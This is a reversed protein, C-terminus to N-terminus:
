ARNNKAINHTAWNVSTKWSNSLAEDFKSRFHKLAEDDSMKLVLTDRLYNLDKESSLEPLGTSIMMAFLSIFLNGHKRLVMFAKECCEQFIKFELSKTNQGKNIVYVFDHTLVFPVRERKFGFKEKFHGLIHGFDVHFVQGNQKVMINDSHRDAIGLVYTAVCYGACSLTFETVAKNLANESPNHDKLWALIPGKRFAATATFMGKEKQINAITEANLVVEIMGVRNELSICGYPNMRLDLNEKKWLKDMLKIMQLTLMDQRLDDGNKFIIYVDEGYADSNEFVIWLPRMKSDMVRCKELKIRTCRYMPNLPSRTNNIAMEAISESLYEKLAAKAKEKDKSQRVLESCIKLKDLCELQKQLIVIHEQTGRCYAELILGFRVSVAPVSMESRLHWFLYHGIQQNSLARRLLFNVLDCDLYLEHKLAQVLQLLYLLIEEDSVDYLCEVAFKRLEQDAYAYDLLELAKEVSLKPWVKLMAFVESVEERKDWDICYLLKPLVEPEIRRWHNKLAWIKKRDQDHAEYLNDTEYLLKKFAAEDIREIEKDSDKLDVNKIISEVSPFVVTQDNAYSKINVTLTTAHEIYPNSVVTGLPHLFDDSNMDDAFAWMYLTMDGCKLQGKFDYVSTNAWALPNNSFNNDKNSDKTKKTRTGKVYKNVEYVVFCLKASRPVDRVEIDFILETDIACEYKDNISCDITKKPQCLSKGGHFLGAQIGIESTKKLDCNLKSVTCIKVVFNDNISWSSVGNKKKRLTNTSGFSTSHVKRNEFIDLCEYDNTKFVPVKDVHLTILTPTIGRSICDQVYQFEIIRNDGILFEDQGCVKLVYESVRENRINLTTARKALFMELLKKPKIIAPVNFTYSSQMIEKENKKDYFNYEHDFKTAIKINGNVTQDLVFSDSQIRPPFQYKLSEVWSQKSRQQAIEDGMRRMKFRFDNIESSNLADFEQLRKGILHGISINLSDDSKEGRCESIILIAGTPRIDCLRRSEDNIKEREAMSNIYTFIYVSMDHLKGFLPFKAAEEWLDEKIEAFSANYSVNELLIIIGNPLLCTLTISCETSTKDWFDYSYESPIPVM